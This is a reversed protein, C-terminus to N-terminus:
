CSAFGYIILRVQIKQVKLGVNWFVEFPLKKFEESALEGEVTYFIFDPASVYFSLNSGWPVRRWVELM